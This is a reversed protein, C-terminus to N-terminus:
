SHNCSEGAIGLTMLGALMATGSLLERSRVWDGSERAKKKRQPTAKETQQDSM